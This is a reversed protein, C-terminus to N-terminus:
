GSVDYATLRQQNRIYLRGGSVVPHAWSPRGFSEIKFRGRERYEEPTAEVLAVQHGEGLCYLMGDAYVLSGKSVSRATWAIEGTLYHMCILGGNGFGYLHDGVRVLGGHHNAMKKEFYVEEARLGDGSPIIQALGGGTGYGSSAFVHNDAAIPTTINATSNNAASYSWLFAGDSARVGFVSNRAFQVVQRVGALEALVPSSYQAGEKVGTSRWVEEGTLKNLAVLTGKNGGPTVILLDDVVLPSECYGWGPRGGGLDRVLNRHWLTKGTAVELCSLDGNGGEAYLRQGDITPTGRPGDGNGNRYGGFHGRLEDPTLVGDNGPFTRAYYEALESQTILGDRGREAKLLYAELEAPTLQEDGKKEGPLKEDIQNFPRNLLSAAAEKRSIRGNEDADLTQLFEQTRRASLAAADAEPDPQDVQAFSDRFAQGAEALALKGDSNADLRDFLTRARAAALAQANGEAPTDAKNFNWGLQALAEIESLRGDGDKDGRKMEDAVRQALQEEVPAPLVAWLRSGDKVSLAIVHEVGNLDGQTFIRGGAVALSSFGVGVHNVEWVVKPGEEPWQKLLGKELSVGDRRPGRWQPWDTGADPKAALLSCAFGTLLVFAVSRHRRPM